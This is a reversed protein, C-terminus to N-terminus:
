TDQFLCQYQLHLPLVPECMLEKGTLLKEIKEKQNQKRFLSTSVSLYDHHVSFSFATFLFAYQLSNFTSYKNNM